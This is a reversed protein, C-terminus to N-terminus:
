ERSERINKQAFNSNHNIKYLLKQTFVIKILNLTWKSSLFLSLACKQLLVLKIVTMVQCLISHM